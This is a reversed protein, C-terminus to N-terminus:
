ENHEGVELVSESVIYSHESYREFWKANETHVPIIYRPSIVKILKDITFSDAHGSTHLIHLKVGKGQMFELFEKMEPQEMYGKWMGYFLVGDEFSVLENLKNLYNKMSQRICMVFPKKSIEHKGIKAKGYELLRVHQKDGGTMFVRVGEDINPEPAVTGASMAIDATYIDELFVRNTQRAINYATIMRDINMSSIMIFAPGNHKKLFDTAIQELNQEEINSKYDERSLTTGEVIVADVEPLNYLLKDFDLRGNARFDGTYIITKGDHKILFMYSDFASHDCLYPTVSMDGIMVPQRDYIFNTDFGLEKDRYNASAQLIRFAKEGMYIPIKKLINGLLGVHDAHYHSIFIADCNKDGNFVGDIEPVVTRDNEDLNVGVDFFLRTFNSSVEVISGGIQNQGRHIHIKM